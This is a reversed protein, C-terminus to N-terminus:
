SSAHCPCEQLLSRPADCTACVSWLRDCSCDAFQMDIPTLCTLCSTATACPPYWWVDGVKPVKPVLTVEEVEGALVPTWQELGRWAEESVVGKGFFIVSQSESQSERQSQKESESQSKEAQVRVNKVQGTLGNRIEDARVINLRLARLARKSGLTRFRRVNTSTPQPVVFRSGLLLGTHSIAPRRPM